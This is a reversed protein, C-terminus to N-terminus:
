CFTATQLPRMIPIAVATSFRSRAASHQKEAQEQTQTGPPMNAVDYGHARNLAPPNQIYAPAPEVGFQGALLEKPNKLAEKVQGSLSSELSGKQQVLKQVGRVSFPMAEAGAFKALQALQQVV